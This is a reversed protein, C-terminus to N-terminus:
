RATLRERLAQLEECVGHYGDQASKFGHTEPSTLVQSSTASAYGKVYNVMAEYLNATGSGRLPRWNNKLPLLAAYQVEAGRRLAVRSPVRHLADEPGMLVRGNAAVAVGNFPSLERWCNWM